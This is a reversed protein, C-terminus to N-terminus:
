IKDAVGADEFTAMNNHLACAMRLLSAACAAGSGEGLRMNLNLIPQADLAHLMLEHGPEASQHGFLMWDRVLPNIHTASLAAATCIFGDILIPLRRQACRIFAGTLAAIEFGGYARLIDLATMEHGAHRALAIDILEAKHMVADDDLGSGPGVLYSTPRQLFACGLATASSTNGIGMEGGIFVDTGTTAAREAADFGAQLAIKLQVPTMADRRSFDATGEGARADIVERRGSAQLTGVDIVELTANLSKALTSIAAGGGVFNSLMQGTVEQPYASVGQTAIGHDAAFVSIYVREASPQDSNQMAALQMALRELMGLSGVPKTLCHQRKEARRLAGETPPQIADFLWNTHKRPM